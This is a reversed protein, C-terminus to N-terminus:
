DAVELGFAIMYTVGQGSYLYPYKGAPVALYPELTYIAKAALSIVLNSPTIGVANTPAADSATVGDDGYGLSVFDGATTSSWVIRVIYLTKGTPVVYRSTAGVAGTAGVATVFTNYKGTGGAAGILRVLKTFDLGYVSAFNFSTDYKVQQAQTFDPYDSM